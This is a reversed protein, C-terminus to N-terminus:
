IMKERKLQFNITRLYKEPVIESVNWKVNKSIIGERKCKTFIKEAYDIHKKLDQEKLFDEHMEGEGLEYIHMIAWCFVGFLQFPMFFPIKNKLSADERVELYGNLFLEKERESFDFADFIIAIELAPDILGLDEWDILKLKGQSFIVNQPAIDGHGFVYSPKMNIKMRQLNRYSNELVDEFEGRITFYLNRKANIYDIRRKIKYLLHIKSSGHRELRNKMNKINTNHLQAVVRGLKRELDEDIEKYKNLSRGELYELIIFTEGLYKKSSEFHFVRPAIDLPEVIKLYNYERESKNSSSPDMNIRVTFKKGNMIALYNLNSEGLGIKQTLISEIKNLGFIKPDLKKLYEKIRHNLINVM